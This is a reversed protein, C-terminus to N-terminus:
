ITQGPWFIAGGRTAREIRRTVTEGALLRQAHTPREIRQTMPAATVIVVAHDMEFVRVQVAQEIRALGDHGTFRSRSEPARNSVMLLACLPFSLWTM